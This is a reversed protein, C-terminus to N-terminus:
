RMERTKAVYFTMEKVSEYISNLLGVTINRNLFHKRLPIMSVFDAM